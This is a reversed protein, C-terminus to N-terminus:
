SGLDLTGKQSVVNGGELFPVGHLEVGNCGLGEDILLDGVVAFRCRRGVGPSRSRACHCSSETRHWQMVVFACALLGRVGGGWDDVDCSHEIGYSPHHIPRHSRTKSGHLGDSGVEFFKRSGAGRVFGTLLELLLGAWDAEKTLSLSKGVVM